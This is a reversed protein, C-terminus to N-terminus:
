LLYNTQWQRTIIDREREEGRQLLYSDHLTLVVSNKMTPPAITAAM